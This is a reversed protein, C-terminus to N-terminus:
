APSVGGMHDVADFDTRRLRFLVSGWFKSNGGVCYHTYPVFEKGRDDVWRETARYRLDKWVATPDWNEPERPVFDGREVILIRATTTSLAHAMTGGGAGSGIIIVDYHETM